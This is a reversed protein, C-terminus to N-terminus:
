GHIEGRCHTSYDPNTQFLKKLDRCFGLEIETHRIGVESMMILYDLDPITSKCEAIGHKERKIVEQLLSSRHELLTVIQESPLADAFALGLYFYRDEPGVYALAERLIDLLLERGASTIHYVTRTPM